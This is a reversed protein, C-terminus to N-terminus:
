PIGGRTQSAGNLSYGVLNELTAIRSINDPCVALARDFEYVKAGVLFRYWFGQLFHYILGPMGDLIGLQPIYRYLFYGFSSLPFPIANYVRDKVFRKLAAQTSTSEGTLPPAGAFLGYRRNLVEIAERTAYANHKAIFYGIDHLNYDAFGGDLVITRGGSVAVHEDMWRDEVRGHGRRWLRLMLLPYRGGHRIWRNLFIHKRKINIGVVDTPLSPLQTRITEALDPEIIEDADLRMIWDSRIQATDLAWNFQRAQNDFTRVLVQASLANAIEVTRDTSGSDVVFIENAFSQVSRIARELHLEENYSLIIVAISM